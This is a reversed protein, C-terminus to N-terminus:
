NYIEIKKIFYYNTNNDTTGIELVNEGGRIDSTIDWEIEEMRGLDELLKPEYYYSLVTNNFKVNIETNGSLTLPYKERSSAAHLKLTFTQEYDLNLPLKFIIKIADNGKPNRYPFAYGLKWYFDNLKEHYEIAPGGESSSTFARERFTYGMYVDCNEKSIEGRKDIEAKIRLEPFYNVEVVLPFGAKVSIYKKQPRKYGSVAGFSVSHDGIPLKDVFKGEAKYEGDIFIKGKIPQTTIQVIESTQKLTFTAYSAPNQQTLKIEIAKPEIEFGEKELQVVYHGLPLQTFIYDTKEGTDRGNLFIRANTIDSSIDISGLNSIQSGVIKRGQNELPIQEIRIVSTDGRLIRVNKEAPIPVYGNRRLNVNYEGEELALIPKEKLLGFYVDDIFIKSDSKQAVIKLYGILETYSINLQFDLITLSDSKIDIEHFKPISVYGGKLVSIRQNGIPVNHIIRNTYGLFDSNNLYVRGGEVSSRVLLKGTPEGKKEGFWLYLIIILVVLVGSFAIIRKWFPIGSFFDLTLPIGEFEDNTLEHSWKSPIYKQTDDQIKGLYKEELYKRIRLRIERESSSLKNLDTKTRLRFFRKIDDWTTAQYSFFEHQKQAEKDTMWEVEGLHNTYLHYSPLKSFFKEYEDAKIKQISNYNVKFRKFM